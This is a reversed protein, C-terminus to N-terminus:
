LFHLNTFNKVKTIIKTDVQNWHKQAYKGIQQIRKFVKFFGVYQNKTAYGERIAVSINFSSTFVNPQQFTM